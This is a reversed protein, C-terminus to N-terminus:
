IVLSACFHTKTAFGHEYADIEEATGFFSAFDLHKDIALLMNDFVHYFTSGSWFGFKDLIDHRHGGALACLTTALCIEIPV